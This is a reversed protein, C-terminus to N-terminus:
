FANGSSAFQAANKNLRRQGSPKMQGRQPLRRAAVNFLRARKYSHKSQPRCVEIVAPVAICREFSGSVVQNQAACRMAVCELPM